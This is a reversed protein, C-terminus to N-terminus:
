KHAKPLEAPETFVWDKGKVPTHCAVCEQAVNADNGYPTQDMGKWRAWGWGGTKAYKKANKFMFEAHVFKGPVIAAKWDAAEQQKWVLKGLIAGDPWPRTKGARAAQIAKDNGLIVRVTKNDLRHSMSILRWNQYGLPFKIGNPSPKPVHHDAAALGCLATYIALISLCKKYHM